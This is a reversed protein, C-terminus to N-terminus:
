VFPKVEPSTQQASNRPKDNLPVRYRLHTYFAVLIIIGNIIPIFLKQM